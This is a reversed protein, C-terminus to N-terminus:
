LKIRQGNHDQHLLIAILYFAENSKNCMASTQIHYLYLTLEIVINLTYIIRHQMPTMLACTFHIM